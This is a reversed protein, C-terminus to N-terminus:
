SEDRWAPDIDPSGHIIRLMRMGPSRLEYLIVYPPVVTSRGGADLDDLRRGANPMVARQRCRRQPQEISRRPRVRGAADGLRDHPTQLYLRAAPRLRGRPPVRQPETEVSAALLEAVLADDFPAVLAEKSAPSGALARKRGALKAEAAAEHPEIFPVVAAPKGNQGIIVPAEHVEMLPAGFHNKAAKASM